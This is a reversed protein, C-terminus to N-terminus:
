YPAYGPMAYGQGYGPMGYGQMAQMGYGQMGYGMMGMSGAAPDARATAGRVAAAAMTPNSYAARVAQDIQDWGSPPKGNVRELSIPIGGGEQIIANWLKSATAMPLTNTVDGGCIESLKNLTLEVFQQLFTESDTIAGASLQKVAEERGFEVAESVKKQSQKGPVNQKVIQYGWSQWRALDFAYNNARNVKDRFEEDPLGQPLTHAQYYYKIAAAMSASMDVKEVYAYRDGLARWYCEYFKM